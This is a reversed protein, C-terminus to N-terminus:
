CCCCRCCCCCFCLCLFFHSLNAPTSSVNLWESLSDSNMVSAVNRARFPALTSPYQDGGVGVSRCDRRRSAQLRRPRWDADDGIEEPINEGNSVVWNWDSHRLVGMELGSWSNKKSEVLFDTSASHAWSFILGVFGSTASVRRICHVIRTSSRLEGRIVDM